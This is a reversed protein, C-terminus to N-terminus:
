TQTEGLDELHFSNFSNENIYVYAVLVHQLKKGSYETDTFEDNVSTREYKNYRNAYQVTMCFSMTVVIVLIMLIVVHVAEVPMEGSMSEAHVHSINPILVASLISLFISFM